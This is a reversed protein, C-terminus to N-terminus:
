FSAVVEASSLPGYREQICHALDKAKVFFKEMFPQDYPKKGCKSCRVRLALEKLTM